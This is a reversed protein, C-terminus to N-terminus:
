DSLWMWGSQYSSYFCLFLSTGCWCTASLFRPPIDWSHPTGAGCWAEQGLTRIGPLYIGMVEQKLFCRPNLWHFFIRSNWATGRLYGVCSNISVCEQAGASTDCSLLCWHSLPLFHLGQCWPLAQPYSEGLCFPPCFGNDKKQARGGFFGYFWCIPAMNSVRDVQRVSNTGGQLDGSIEEFVVWLGVWVTLQSKEMHIAPRPEHMVHM